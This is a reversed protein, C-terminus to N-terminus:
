YNVVAIKLFRCFEALHSLLRVCFAVYQIVGHIYFLGSFGFGDLFYLLTPAPALFLSSSQMPM